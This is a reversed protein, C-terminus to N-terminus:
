GTTLLNWCNRCHYTHYAVNRTFRPFSSLKFWSIHTFRRIEVISGFAPSSTTKLTNSFINTIYSYRLTRALRIRRINACSRFSKWLFTEWILVQHVVVLSFTDCELDRHNITIQSNGMLSFHWNVAVLLCLPTRQRKSYSRYAEGPNWLNRIFWWTQGECRLVSLVSGRIELDLGSFFAFKQKYYSAAIDWM